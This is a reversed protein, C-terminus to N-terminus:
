KINQYQTVTNLSIVLNCLMHQAVGARWLFHFDFAFFEHFDLINSHAFTARKQYISIQQVRTSFLYSETHCTKTKFRYSKQWTAPEQRENDIYEATVCCVKDLYIANKSYSQRVFFCTLYCRSLPPLNENWIKEM